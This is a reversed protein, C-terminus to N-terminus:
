ESDGLTLYWNNPDKIIMESIKSPDARAVIGGRRFYRIFGNERLVKYYPNNKMMWCVTLGVKEKRLRHIAESILFQIIEPHDPHTVIDTICGRKSDLTKEASFVIYGLLKKGEEALLVTFNSNPRQFYRWNLYEKNRVVAIKFTRLAEKWFSNIRDEFKTIENLTLNRFSPCAKASYFIRFISNAFISLIKALFQNVVHKKIEEYSDFFKVLIPIRCIAFTEKHRHKYTIKNAIGYSIAHGEKKAEEWSVKSLRHYLGKHRFDPHVMADCAISGMVVKDEVKMKVSLRSFFGIIQGKHEAVMMISGFPSYKFQWIWKDRDARGFCIKRLKLINEEDSERYRRITWSQNAMTKSEHKLQMPKIM